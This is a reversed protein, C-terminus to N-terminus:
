DMRIFLRGVYSTVPMVLYSFVCASIRPMNAFEEYLPAREQLASALSKPLSYTLYCQLEELMELLCKMWWSSQICHSLSEELFCACVCVSM